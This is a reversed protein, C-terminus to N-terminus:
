LLQNYTLFTQNKKLKWNNLLKQNHKPKLFNSSTKPHGVTVYKLDINNTKKITKSVKCIKKGKNKLFLEHQEKSKTPDPM